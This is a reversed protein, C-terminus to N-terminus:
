SEIYNKIVIIVFGNKYKIKIQDETLEQHINFSHEYFKKNVNSYFYNDEKKSTKFESNLRIILYNNESVVELVDDGQLDPLYVKIILNNNKHKIVTDGWKYDVTCFPNKKDSLAKELLLSLSKQFM